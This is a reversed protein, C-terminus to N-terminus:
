DPKEAISVLEDPSIKSMTPINAVFGTITLFVVMLVDPLQELWPLGSSGYKGQPFLVTM